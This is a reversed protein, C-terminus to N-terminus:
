SLVHRKLLDVQSIPLEQAEHSVSEIDFILNIPKIILIVAVYHHEKLLIVSYSKHTDLHVRPQLIALCTYIYCIVNLHRSPTSM